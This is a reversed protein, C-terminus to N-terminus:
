RRVPTMRTSTGHARDKTHREAARHVKAPTMGEDHESARWDCDLCTATTVLTVTV